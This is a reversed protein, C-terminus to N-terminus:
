ENLFRRGLPTNDEVKARLKITKYIPCVIQLCQRHEMMMADRFTAFRFLM